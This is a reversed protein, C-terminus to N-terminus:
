FYQDENQLIAQPRNIMESYKRKLRNGSTTLPTVNSSLEIAQSSTKPKLKQITHLLMITEEPFQPALQSLAPTIIPELPEEELIDTWTTMSPIQIQSKIPSIESSTDITKGKDNKLTQSAHHNYEKAKAPVEDSSAYETIIKETGPLHSLTPKISGKEEPLPPRAQQIPPEPQRNKALRNDWSTSEGLQGYQSVGIEAELESLLGYLNCLEGNPFLDCYPPSMRPEIWSQEKTITTHSRSSIETSSSSGNTILENLQNQMNQVQHEAFPLQEPNECDMSYCSKDAQEGNFNSTGSTDDFNPFPHPFHLEHISPESVALCSGSSYATSSSNKTWALHKQNPSFPHKDEHILALSNTNNQYSGESQSFPHNDQHILALSNTNNQYSGDSQSFPHSDKHILAPSKTKNQYSGDSQSFPNNDEHILALSKTKNQCSRDSRSYNKKSLEAIVKNQESSSVEPCRFQPISPIDGDMAMAAVNPQNERVQNSPEQYDAKGHQKMKLCCLVYGMNDPHPHLEHMVWKSRTGKSNQGDHFVLIIKSGIKKNDNKAKIDKHKGTINWSSGCPTKRSIRQSQTQPCIFWWEQDKSPIVSKESFKAPLDWPNIEYINELTPIICFSERCGSVTLKLHNLLEEETPCFRFGEIAQQLFLVIKTLENEAPLINMPYIRTEMEQKRRCVEIEQISLSPPLAKPKKM